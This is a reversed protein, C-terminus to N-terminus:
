FQIARFKTAALAPLGYRLVNTYGDDFTVVIQPKSLPGVCSVLQGSTFGEARLEELQKRFLAQSVYLGKLRVRAPRPGLKHYTLIPNGQRFVKRFPALGSYYAPTDSRM